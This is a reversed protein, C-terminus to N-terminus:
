KVSSCVACCFPNSIEMHRSVLYNSIVCLLHCTLPDLVLIHPSTLLSLSPVALTKDTSELFVVLLPRVRPKRSLLPFWQPLARPHRSPATLFGSCVSHHLSHQDRSALGESGPGCVSLDLLVHLTRLPLLVSCLSQPSSSCVLCWVQPTFPWSGSAACKHGFSKERGSDDGGLSSGFLQFDRSVGSGGTKGM